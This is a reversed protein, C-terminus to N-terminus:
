VKEASSVKPSLLSKSIQNPLKDDVCRACPSYMLPVGLTSDVLTAWDLVRM